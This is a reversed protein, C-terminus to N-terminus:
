PYAKLLVQVQPSTRPVVSKPLLIERKFEPVIVSEIILFNM